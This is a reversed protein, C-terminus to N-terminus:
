VRRIFRNRIGRAVERWYVARTHAKILPRRLTAGGRAATNQAAVLLSDLQWLLIQLRSRYAMPGTEPYLKRKQRRNLTLALWAIPMISMCVTLPLSILIVTLASLGAIFSLAQPTRAVFGLYVIGALLVVVIITMIVIPAYVNRRLYRRRAEDRALQELTPRHSTRSTVGYPGSYVPSQGGPPDYTAFSGGAPQINGGAPGTMPNHEPTSPTNGASM